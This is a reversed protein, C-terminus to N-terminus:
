KRRRKDERESNVVMVATALGMEDYRPAMTARVTPSVGGLYVDKVHEFATSCSDKMKAALLESTSHGDDMQKWAAILCLSYADDAAHHQAERTSFDAQALIISALAALLMVVQADGVSYLLL